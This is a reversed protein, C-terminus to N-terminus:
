THLKPLGVLGISELDIIALIGESVKGMWSLAEFWHLLHTQLFKHVDGEDYVQDGSKQLHSVWYSCAYQVEPPLCEEVRSHPLDGVLTGPSSVCCNDRKLVHMVNLCRTMMKRHMQRKDVWFSPDDCRGEDLIFDRFSPHHLRLPDRPSDPIDLIAGLDQLTEDVTQRPIDLLRGLCEASLSSFLIAM